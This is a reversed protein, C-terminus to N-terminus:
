IFVLVKFPTTKSWELGDPGFFLSGNLFAPTGALVRFGIAFGITFTEVKIVAREM